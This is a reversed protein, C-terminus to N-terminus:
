RMELESVDINMKRALNVLASPNPCKKKIGEISLKGSKSQFLLQNYAYKKAMIPFDDNGVEDLIRKTENRVFNLIEDMLQDLKVKWEIFQILDFCQKNNILYQIKAIEKEINDWSMKNWPRAYLVNAQWEKKLIKWYDCGSQVSFFEFDPLTIATLRGGHCAGTDIGYVIDNYVMPTGDFVTHGFIIPKEGDYLEYWPKGCLKNQLHKEGSSAGCLVDERQDELPIGPEIAAHVVIASDYERYYPLQMLWHIATEYEDNFQLRTIEQAYSYYGTIHKREHNGTICGFNKRDRFLNFVKLSDPGRDLMDGLSIVTDDERPSIKELLRVLEDYCGHIDGIVIQRSM